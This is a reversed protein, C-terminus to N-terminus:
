AGLLRGSRASRGPKPGQHRRVPCSRRAGRRVYGFRELTELRAYVRPLTMDLRVAVAAAMVAGDGALEALTEAVAIDAADPLWV